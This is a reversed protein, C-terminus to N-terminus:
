LGVISPISGALALLREHVEAWPRALDVTAIRIVHNQVMMAEELDGDTTPYLLLGEAVRHADSRHEQTRLYTYLQYLNESHFTPKGFAGVSLASKYFKTDVVVRRHPPAHGSLTIDTWMFPVLPNGLEDFWELRESAVSYGALHTRWFNRVFREFLQNFRIEDKMLAVLAYDGADEVPLELRYILECITMPLVYDLDNRGLQLQSFVSGSISTLRVGEMSRLLSLLKSRLEAAKAPDAHDVRPDRALRDLTSRLIRNRLTDVSLESFRCHARGSEFELRKLSEGFDIRGRIGRLTQRHLRFTRALNRRFLTQTADALIRALLGLLSPSDEVAGRHRDRWVAMDWAYLLLYWANRVPIASVLM